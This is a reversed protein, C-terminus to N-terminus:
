LIIGISLSITQNKAAGDIGKPLMNTLTKNYGLTFSLHQNLEAGAIFSIGYSAKKFDDKSPDNGWSIKHSDNVVVGYLSETNVSGAIGIDVFGGAGAFPKVRGGTQFKTLLQVPVEVYVPTFQYKSSTSNIVLYFGKDLLSLGPQIYLFKNLAIDGFVSINFSSKASTELENADRFQTLSSHYGMQFGLRSQAHISLFTAFSIISTLLLKRM